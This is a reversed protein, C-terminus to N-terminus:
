MNYCWLEIIKLTMARSLKNSNFVTNKLLSERFRCPDWKCRKFKEIYNITCDSDCKKCKEDITVSQFCLEFVTNLEEETRFFKIM